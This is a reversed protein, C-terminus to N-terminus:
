SSSSQALHTSANPQVAVPPKLDRPAPLAVNFASGAGPTSEAWVRGGHAEVLLRVAYLGLGAGDARSRAEAGRYGREFVHALDEAAIGMGRDVVSLVVQDSQTTVRVIVKAEDGSYKLGNAVLNGVIREMQYFDAEIVAGDPVDVGVRETELVAALRDLLAPLFGALDIVRRQLALHGAEQRGIDFLDKLMMSMHGLAVDADESRAQIWQPDKALLGQRLVRLQIRAAELPLRVDHYVLDIFDVLQAEHHEAREARETATRQLALIELRQSHVRLAIYCVAILTSVTVAWITLAPHTQSTIALDGIVVVLVISRMGLPSARLMGILVPIMLALPFNSAPWAYLNTLFAFALSLAILVTTLASSGGKVASDHPQATKLDVTLTV